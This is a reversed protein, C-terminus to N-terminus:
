VQWLFSPDTHFLPPPVLFFEFVVDGEDTVTILLIIESGDDRQQRFSWVGGDNRIETQLQCNSVDMGIDTCLVAKEAREAGPNPSFLLHGIAVGFLFSLFFPLKMSFRESNLRSRAKFYAFLLQAFSACFLSRFVCANEPRGVITVRCGPIPVRGSGRGKGHSRRIKEVGRHEGGGKQPRCRVGPTPRSAAEGGRFRLCGFSRCRQHAAGVGQPAGGPSCHQSPCHLHEQHAKEGLLNWCFCPQFGGAGLYPGMGVLAARKQQPHERRTHEQGGKRRSTASSPSATGM